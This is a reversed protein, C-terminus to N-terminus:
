VNDHFERLTNMFEEESMSPYLKWVYDNDFRVVQQFSLGCEKFILFKRKRLERSTCKDQFLSVRIFMTEYRTIVAFLLAVPMFFISLMFPLALSIATERSLWNPYNAILSKIAYFLLFIGFCVMIFDLIKEVSKFEEKREAVASMAGLIVIFPVLLLEIWFSFTYFNVIFSVIVMFKINDSLTKRFFLTDKELNSNTSFVLPIGAFLFWLIIEKVSFDKWFFSFYFIITICVTYIALLFFSLLLQWACATKALQLLPVRLEKKLLMLALAVIAWAGIALERTSFIEFM